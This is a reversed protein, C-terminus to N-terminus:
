ECSAPPAARKALFRKGDDGDKRIVGGAEGCYHAAGAITIQVKVPAQGHGFKLDYDLSHPGKGTCRARVVKGRRIMISKCPGESLDRDVYRYSTAGRVSLKWNQCPLPATFSEGSVESWVEIQGGGGGAADCRPDFVSGPRGVRIGPDKLTFVIQNRSEGSPPNTILVKRAFAPGDSCGVDEEHQCDLTPDCFDVTCLLGDECVLDDPAHLCQGTNEDCSDVTCGVQDDCDVDSEFVCLGNGDCHDDTCLNGDLECPTSLPADALPDCAGTGPNCQEGAECPPVAAQCVVTSELVCAGNGNCHDNTCLDGDLECPTSPPADTLPDCAGTGPNCVEGGECPPGADQCVVTSQLVCAGNGDCHDITCLNGDLECPTSAPADPVEECLGTSPNCVEGAECPGSSGPCTVTSELVCSGSGDCHDVTCLDADLECPTSPPADALPDCAGTTPNCEEGGECPPAAAQCVVDSLFV